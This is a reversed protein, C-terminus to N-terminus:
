KVSNTGAAVATVFRSRRNLHCLGPCLARGWSRWREQLTVARTRNLGSRCTSASNTAARSPRLRPTFGSPAPSAIPAELAKPFHLRLSAPSQFPAKSAPARGCSRACSPILIRSIARGGLGYAVSALRTRLALFLAHGSSGSLIM